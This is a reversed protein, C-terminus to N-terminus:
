AACKEESRAQAIEAEQRKVDPDDEPDEDCGVHTRKIWLKRGMTMVFGEYDDGAYIRSECRSCWYDNDATRRYSRICRVREPKKFRVVNSFNKSM